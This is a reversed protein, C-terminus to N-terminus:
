QFPLQEHTLSRMERDTFHARGQTAETRGKGLGRSPEPLWHALGVPGHASVAESMALCGRGAQQEWGTLEQSSMGATEKGESGGAWKRAMGSSGPMESSVRLHAAGPALFLMVSWHGPTPATRAWFPGIEPLVVGEEEEEGGRREKKGVQKQVM